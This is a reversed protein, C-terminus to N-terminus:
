QKVREQAKLTKYARKFNILEECNGECVPHKSIDCKNLCFQIAVFESESPARRERQGTTITMSRFCRKNLHVRM